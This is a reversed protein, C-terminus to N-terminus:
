GSRTALLRIWFVLEFAAGLVLLLGSLPRSGEFGLAYCVVALALVGATIWGHKM